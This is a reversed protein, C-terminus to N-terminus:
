APKGALVHLRVDDANQMPEEADKQGSSDKWHM